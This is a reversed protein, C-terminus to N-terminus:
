VHLPAVFSIAAVRVTKQCVVYKVESWSSRSSAADIEPNGLFGWSYATTVGVTGAARGSPAAAYEVLKANSACSGASSTVVALLKPKLETLVVFALKSMLVVPAVGLTNFPPNAEFDIGSEGSGTVTECETVPITVGVTAAPELTKYAGPVTFSDKTRLM